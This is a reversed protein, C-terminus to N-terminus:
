SRHVLNQSEFAEVDVLRYLVSSGVKLFAPGRGASRDNALRKTTTGWRQALDNPRLHRVPAAGSM